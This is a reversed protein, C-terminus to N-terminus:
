YESDSYDSDDSEGYTVDEDGYEEYKDDGIEADGASYEGQEIGKLLCIEDNTLASVKFNSLVYDSTSRVYGGLTYYGSEYLEPEVGPQAYWMNSGDAGFMQQVTQQLQKMNPIYVAGNASENVGDGPVTVTNIGASTFNMLYKSYKLVDKVTFNTDMESKIDSFISPIKKILSLNLKQDVLTKLFDQQVKIRDSDGNPYSKYIGTEPDVNGKRYRLLQVVQSGNLDYNGPPLNIHLGQVPDDYVMGVGDGYIDPVTFNVPGLEDVIHAVTDFNFDIYYNISVGTLRTVAECAATAGGIEGDTEFAHAANIKQYRNGIYMRLDRPISLLNVTNQETNYSALMMADTRLGDIDTCMVLVNITGGDAAVVSGEDGVGTSGRGFIDFGLCVMGALFIVGLTIGLVQFYKKVNFRM